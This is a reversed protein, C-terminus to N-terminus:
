NFFLSSNYLKYDHKHLDMHCYNISTRIITLYNIIKRCNLFYKFFLYLFLSFSNKVPCHSSWAANVDTEHQNGYPHMELAKPKPTCVPYKTRADSRGGSTHCRSETRRFFYGATILVAPRFVGHSQM